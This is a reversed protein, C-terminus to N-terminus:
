NILIIKRDSLFNLLYTIYDSAQDYTWLCQDCGGSVRNGDAGTSGSFYASPAEPWEYTKNQQVLLKAKFDKILGQYIVDKKTYGTGMLGGAKELYKNVKMPKKIIYLTKDHDASLYAVGYYSKDQANVAICALLTTLTLLFFIKKM